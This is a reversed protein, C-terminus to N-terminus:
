LLEVKLQHNGYRGSAMVLPNSFINPRLLPFVKNAFYIDRSLNRKVLMAETEKNQEEFHSGHRNIRSQEVYISLYM